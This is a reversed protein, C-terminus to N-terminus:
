GGARRAGASAAIADATREALAMVTLQPPVGLPGPFVSADAVFLGKVGHLEGTPGTVSERPDSGMRCTGQPRTSTMRLAIRQVDPRDLQILYTEADLTANTRPGAFVKRAGARFLLLATLRIGELLRERDKRGPEYRIEADSGGRVRVEGTSRDQLVVSVVAMHNYRALVRKHAAGFGALWSAMTAPGTSDGELTFGGKGTRLDAFHSSWISQPVGLYGRVPEAFVGVVPVAPNVRLKRGIRKSRDPVRSRLLLLPSELAGAAVVVVPAAVEISRRRSRTARDLIAGRVGRVAGKSLLLADARADAHLRAGARLAKPLYTLMMSRMAGTPCGQACRGCGACGSVSRSLVDQSLGLSEAGERLARNSRNIMAGPVPSVSIERAVRAFHDEMRAAALDGVGSVRVWADLVEGPAPMATGLGVVTSGGVCRGELVLLRGDASARWGGGRYLRLRSEGEDRVFDRTRVWPGEELVVVKMGAEALRRAVVAGGAGSGIVCADAELRLDRDVAHGEVIRGATGESM